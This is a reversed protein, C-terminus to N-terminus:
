PRMFRTLLGMVITVILSIGASVVVLRGDLNAKERRLEHVQAALTEHEVRTAMRNAQDKLADRFENMGALRESMLREARSVSADNMDLRMSLRQDLDAIRRELFEKLAVDTM